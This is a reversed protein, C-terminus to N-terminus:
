INSKGYYLRMFKIVKFLEKIKIIIAILLFIIRTEIIVEINFYMKDSHNVMYHEDEVKYFTNHLFHKLRDIVMWSNVILIYNEYNLGSSVTVKKIRAMKCILKILQRSKIFINLNYIISDLDIKDRKNKTTVIYKLVKGISFKVNFFKVLRIEIVSNDKNYLLRTNIPM